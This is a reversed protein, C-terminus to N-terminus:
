LKKIKLNRFWVKGGHDQLMIRGDKTGFEPRKKFKSESHRVQWDESGINMEMVKTGNLWHELLNEKAIIKSHNFEGVPKITKCTSAGKIAYLAATAGKDDPKYRKGIDDIIQYEPGLISGSYDAM